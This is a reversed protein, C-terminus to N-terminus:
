VRAGYLCWKPLVTRCREHRCDVNEWLHTSAKQAEDEGRTELTARVAAGIARLVSCCKRRRRQSRTTAGLRWSASLGPPYYNLPFAESVRQRAFRSWTNVAWGSM